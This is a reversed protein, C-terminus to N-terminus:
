FRVNMDAIMQQSTVDIILVNITEGSTAIPLMETVENANASTGLELKGDNNYVYLTDGATFEELTPVINVDGSYTANGSLTVKTNTSMLSIVDGGQHQIKVAAFSDGEEDKVVDGSARLSAQPAQKPPGMGFVFAAIVAALIVTIAVMLIVGIVPSVADEEELFQNAKCMVHKEGTKPNIHKSIKEEPRGERIKEGM